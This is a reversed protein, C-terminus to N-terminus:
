AGTVELIEVVGRAGDVRVRDGTRLRTTASDCNVVAPLGLERAVIAAHSLPAGVDTVIAAARPFLLTWGVNTQATVLIEGPQLLHGEEPSDLRRVLGEARGASGPSGLILNEDGAQEGPGEYPEHANYFDSRRGPDAAWEFPDFRGRIVRPYAPLAKYRQYTERRAPIAGLPAPRGALLDFLEDYTLFFAGEGIGTQGAAALVWLRLVWFLRTSESRVAERMRAAEAAQDLLNRMASASDPYRSAFDAWAAEFDTRRQALLADVDVPSREYEALQRDLWEPDELPRPVSLELEDPGRHGWDDLYEQRGVQARALRALGVVPGLSALLGDQGSVNSLLVDAAEIGVMEVLEKRLPAVRDNYRLTAALTIWFSDLAYPMLEDMLGVLAGPTRAAQVRPEMARCWAPNGEVFRTMNRRAWSQKRLMRLAGPLTKLFSVGPLPPLYDDMNELYDGRLGGMESSLAKVDQGLARYIAVMVSANQYFRGGINGTSAYGPLIDMQGFARKIVSWTFPTMVVSLAEGLNVASWLYDGTLSDNYEGTAPNYGLLTTIPRSQLIYVKGGAVAWEIDQPGGLERELREALWNLRRAYRKLEPPGAYADRSKSTRDLKFEHPSAQGSVLSEGLGHVYNGRMEVRSGTLPDASFLVGSIEAPVMRQVIVAMEHEGDMGQAQSYARVREAHRSKRVRQIAAYIEHNGRVGLVTEFEGAFSAAASDEALASSRVAFAAQPDGARLRALHAQVGAWAQPKIQDGDFAAPPVLLGNPVPYGRQHLRALVAGKAGATPAMEPLLQDFTYITAPM